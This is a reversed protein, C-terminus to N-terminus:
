SVYELMVNNGEHVWQTAAVKYSLTTHLHWNWFLQDSM